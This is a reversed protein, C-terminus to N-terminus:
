YFMGEMGTVERTSSPLPTANSRGALVMQSGSLQRQTWQRPNYPEMQAQVGPHLAGPTMPMPTASCFPFPTNGASSQGAGPGTIPTQSLPSGAQARLFITTISPPQVPGGGGGGLPRRRQQQQQQVQQTYYDGQTTSGASGGPTPPPPHYTFGSSSGAPSSGHQPPLQQSM